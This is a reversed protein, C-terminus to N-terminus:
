KKSKSYADPLLAKHIFVRDGIQHYKSQNIIKETIPNYTLNIDWEDSWYNSFYANIEGFGEPFLISDNGRNTVFNEHKSSIRILGTSDWVHFDPYFTGDKIYEKFLELLDRHNEVLYKDLQSRLIPTNLLYDLIDSNISYAPVIIDKSKKSKNEKQESTEKNIENEKDESKEEEVIINESPITFKETISFKSVVCQQFLLTLVPRIKEQYAIGKLYGDKVLKINCFNRLAYLKALSEERSIDCLENFTIFDDNNLGLYKFQQNPTLITKSNLIEKLRKTDKSTM